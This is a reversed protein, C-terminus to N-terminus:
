NQRQAQRIALMESMQVAVTNLTESQAKLQESAAASQEANAATAQTAQEMHAIAKGIEDIGRLQEQSGLKVEDALEKAKAAEAGIARISEAVQDVKLKGNSSRAISEEILGATDRAAQASRQALNRVEDAVVAFGMGSEGARAAEVAANLALINTQFAIEDIVKIIKSIKQSSEGIEDMGAVMGDLAGSLDGFRQGSQGAITSTAQSNESNRQAMSSIQQTSSSTQELSAAQEASQQALAQSSSAVQEAASRVEQAGAVFSQAVEKLKQIIRAVVLWTLGGTALTVLLILWNLAGTRNMSAEIAQNGKQQRERSRSGLDAAAKQLANIAPTMQKLAGQSAEEAHGSSCLDAFQQFQERWQALSGRVGDVAARDEGALSQAEMDNLAKTVDQNSKEFASRATNLQGPNHMLAFLSVGRMASRMNAIAITIQRADDLVAGSGLVERTLEARMNRFTLLAYFSNGLTALLIVGFCLFLKSQISRQKQM